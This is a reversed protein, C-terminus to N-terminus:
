IQCYVDEGRRLFKVLAQWCAARLKCTLSGHYMARVFDDFSVVASFSLDVSRCLAIWRRGVSSFLAPLMIMACIVCEYTSRMFQVNVTELISAHLKRRYVIRSSWQLSVFYIASNGSKGVGLSGLVALRVELPVGATGPTDSGNSPVSSVATTGSTSSASSTTSHQQQQQQQLKPQMSPSGSPTTPLRGSSSGTTTMSYPSLFLAPRRVANHHTGGSPQVTSLM